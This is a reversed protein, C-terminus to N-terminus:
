SSKRRDYALKLLEKLLTEHKAIESSTLRLRYYNWRRDYDLLDLDHKELRADFEPEKPLRIHLLLSEKRPKFTAFNCAKGDMWIGIYYKNYSFEAGAAFPRCLELVQEALKITKTSARSEWYARDAKESGEEDEDVFGLQLTDMVKTFILGVGDPM